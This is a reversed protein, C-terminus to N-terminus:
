RSDWREPACFSPDDALCRLAVIVLHVFDLSEQQGEPPFCSTEGGLSIIWVGRVEFFPKQVYLFAGTGGVRSQIRNKLLNMSNKACHLLAQCPSPSVLFM